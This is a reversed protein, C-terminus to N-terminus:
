HRRAAGGGTVAGPPRGRRRPAAAGVAARSPAAVAVPPPASLEGARVAAAAVARMVASRLGAAELVQLGSITTGAPSCVRDKLVAPHTLSGDGSAELVMKAAGLGTQAALALAADRSLGAAVGADAMAELVVYFFAPGSGSVATVADLLAEPVKIVLGGAELLQRVRKEDEATAHTGLSYASAGAGVMLPTNPMVRVVRTKPPLGKEYTALTVGAAISVVLHKEPRIHPRLASLVEPVGQPKVGLLVIDANAAVLEAGGAAAAAFTTEIGSAKALTLSHDSACVGKADICGRDVLARVLASAMQGAGILGLREHIKNSPDNNNNQHHNNNEHTVPDPSSSSSSTHLARPSASAVALPGAARAAGIGVRGRLALLAAARRMKHTQTSPISTHSTRVHGSLHPAARARTVCHPTDHCTV